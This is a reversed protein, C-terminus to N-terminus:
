RVIQLFSQFHVIGLFVFIDEFYGEAFVLPSYFCSSCGGEGGPLPAPTLASGCRSDLYRM